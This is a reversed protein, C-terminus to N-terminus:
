MLSTATLFVMSVKAFTFALTIAHYKSPEVKEDAIISSIRKILKPVLFFSEVCIIGGVLVHFLSIPLLSSPSSSSSPFTKQLLSLGFSPSYANLKEAAFKSLHLSTFFYFIEVTNLASFVHRGVDLLQERKVSPSHFKVWAEMFNIASMFGFWRFHLGRLAAPSPTFLKGIVGAPAPDMASPTPFCLRLAVTTSAAILGVYIPRRHSLLFKSVASQTKVHFKEEASTEIVVLEEIIVEEKKHEM